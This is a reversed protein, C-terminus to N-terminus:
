RGRRRKLDRKLNRQLRAVAIDSIAAPRSSDLANAWAVSTGVVAGALILYTLIEM